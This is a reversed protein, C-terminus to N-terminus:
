VDTVLNTAQFALIKCISCRTTTSFANLANYCVSTFCCFYTLMYVDLPMCIFKWAHISVNEHVFIDSMCVCMQIRWFRKLTDVGTCELVCLCVWVCTCLCACIKTRSCKRSWWVNHSCNVYTFVCIYPCVYVCKCPCVHVCLWMVVCLRVDNHTLMERELLREALLELQARKDVILKTTREYAGKVLSRAQPEICM